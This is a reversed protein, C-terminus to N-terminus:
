ERPGTEQSDRKLHARRERKRRGYGTMMLPDCKGLCFNQEEALCLDRVCACRSLLFSFTRTCYRMAFAILPLVLVLMLMLMPVLMLLLVWFCPVRKCATKTYHSCRSCFFLSPTLCLSVSAHSLSLKQM